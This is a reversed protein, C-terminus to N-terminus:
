NYFFGTEKKDDSMIPKQDGTGLRHDRLKELVTSYLAMNKRRMFDLYDIERVTLKKYLAHSHDKANLFFVYNVVHGLLASFIGFASLIIGVVLLWWFVLLVYQYLVHPSIECLLKHYNIRTNRVDRSAESIDCYGMTPLLVNGPKAQARVKLSHDHAEFNNLAGWSMMNKGYNTYEGNLLTNTGFFAVLNALLYLCRVLLNMLVRYRMRKRSNISRNFYSTMVDDATTKADKLTGKLSILDTNTVKFVIYPLYFLMAFSATLFPMYQYQLYYQKTMPKCTKIVDSARDFSSCLVGSEDIGDYDMNRPIGFYASDSLRDRLDTYIYFGQIWCTSGVFGGGMSESNAVICTVKDSFYNAGIIASFVICMKTMLIRNYQDTVGDDRRKIKISVIKGISDALMAM